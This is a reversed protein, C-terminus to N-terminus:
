KEDGEETMIRYTKIIEGDDMRSLKWAWIVRVFWPKNQYVTALYKQMQKTLKTPM